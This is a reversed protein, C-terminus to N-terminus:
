SPFCRTGVFLTSRRPLVTGVNQIKPALFGSPPKRPIAYYRFRSAAASLVALRSPPMCSPAAASGPRYRPLTYNPRPVSFSELRLAPGPRRPDLDAVLGVPDVLGAVLDVALSGGFGAPDLSAGRVVPLAQVFTARYRVAVRAPLRALRVRSVPFPAVSLLGPFPLFPGLSCFVYYFSTLAAIIFFLCFRPANRKKSTAHSALPKM